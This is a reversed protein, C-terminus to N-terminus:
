PVIYLYLTEGQNSDWDLHVVGIVFDFSGRDRKKEEIKVSTEM